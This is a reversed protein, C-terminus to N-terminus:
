EVDATSFNVPLVVYSYTNDQDKIFCPSKQNTLYLDIEEDDIAKLADMFFHPNFGILIDNGEKEIEMGSNTSGKSTNASINMSSDTINFVVPKNESESIMVSVADINRLLEARNLHVKIEYDESIMKNLDIYDGEILRSIVVTNDFEFVLFRETFYIDIMDDAEGSIIRSIENLTKSPIIANVNDHGDEIEVKRVAIRHNDLATVSLVNDHIEFYEGTLIRVADNTSVAFITKNIVDKLTFQSLSVKKDKKVEPLDPYDDIPKGSIKFVSKECKIETRYAEDVKITIEADSPMKRIIDTFLKANVAVAGEESVNGTLVTEIGLDTDNAVLNITDGITKIVVCSLIEMTSRAPVARTVINLDKILDSQSCQILM